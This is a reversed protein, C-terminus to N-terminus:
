EDPAPWLTEEIQAIILRPQVLDAFYLLGDDDLAFDAFEIRGLGFEDPPITGLLVGDRDLVFLNNAPTDVLWYRGFRDVTVSNVEMLPFGEAARGAHNRLWEGDGSFVALRRNGFDPVVIEDHQFDLAAASPRSLQGDGPGSEGFGFLWLGDESFVQIDERATDVVWIRRQEDITVCCPNVFQGIGRGLRGITRVHRRDADFVQVRHNGGDGVAILSGDPSVAVGVSGDNQTVEAFSFQGDGSGSEGWSEVIGDTRRILIRDNLMDGLYITGDPARAISLPLSGPELDVVEQVSVLVAHAPPSAHAPTTTPTPQDTAGPWSTMRHDTPAVFATVTGKGDSRTTAVLLLGGTVALSVEVASGINVRWLENGSATDLAFLRTASAVYVVDDAVFPFTILREDLEGAPWLENGTVADLGHLRGPMETSVFIRGDAVAHGHIRARDTSQWDWLRAGASDYALVVNRGGRVDRAVVSIVGDVVAPTLVHAGETAMTGKPSGDLGLVTLEGSGAGSVYLLEGGLAAGTTGPASARWLESGDTAALAVLEQDAGAFVTSGAVTVISGLLFGEQEWVVVGGEDISLARLSGDTGIAYLYSGDSSPTAAISAPTTAQWREQGNDLDLARVIGDEGAIILLGGVVLPDATIAAAYEKQWLVVPEEDPGPGPLQGSREVDGKYTLVDVPWESAPLTPSPPPMESAIPAIPASCSLLLVSVFLLSRRVARMDM